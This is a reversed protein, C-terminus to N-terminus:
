RSSVSGWRHPACLRPHAPWHKDLGCRNADADVQQHGTAGREVTVESVSRRRGLLWCRLPIKSANFGEGYTVFAPPTWMRAAKDATDMAQAGNGAPGNSKRAVAPENEYGSDPIREYDDVGLGKNNDSFEDSTAM